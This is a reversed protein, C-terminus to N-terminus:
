KKGLKIKPLKFKPKPFKKCYKAKCKKIKEDFNYTEYVFYLIPVIGVSNIFFIAIFWWKRENRASKYLGFGKWVLEWLLLILIVYPNTLMQANM